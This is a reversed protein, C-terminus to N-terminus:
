EISHRNGVAITTVLTTVGAPIWTHEVGIDRHGSATQTAVVAVDRSTFGTAM